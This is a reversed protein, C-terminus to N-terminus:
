KYYVRDKFRLDIYNIKKDKIKEKIVLNLNALQRDLDEQNDFYIDYGKNTKVQVGSGGREPIQFSVIKLDNNPLKQNVSSIFKIMDASLVQDKVKVATNTLDYVLPLSQDLASLDILNEGTTSSDKPPAEGEGLTLNAVLVEKTALGNPDLYYYHNDTIWTLVNAKEALKIKLTKLPWKSVKVDEVVYRNKIENEAMKSSFIFLNSQSLVGLRSQAMQNQIISTIEESSISSAGEVKINNIKFINSWFLLYLIFILVIFALVLYVKFSRRQWFYQRRKFVGSGGDFRKGAIRGSPKKYQQKRWFM